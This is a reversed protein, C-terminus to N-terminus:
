RRNNSLQDSFNNISTSQSELNSLTSEMNGYKRKYEAEKKDLQDELKKISTQTSSIRTDLTSIKTSLIGGTQVYAQLNKDLLYAIGSDIVKDDDTDYGFLSKIQDINETLASDLKKEDIELYGRLRSANYTGSSAGTSIGIQALMSIDNGEIIYNNTIIRQLSNKGTSLTTDGTFMGLKKEYEETEETSLYELESIIEPKNQTLVNFETMLQNYYGVLKILADKASETDSKITISVPKDSAEHLNL